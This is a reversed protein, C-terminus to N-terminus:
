DRSAKWGSTDLPPALTPVQRGREYVIILTRGDASYEIENRMFIDGSKPVSMYSRSGDDNEYAHRIRNYEPGYTSPRPITFQQVTQAPQCIVPSSTMPSSTVPSSTYPASIKPRCTAPRSTEVRGKDTLARLLQAGLSNKIDYDTDVIKTRTMPKIHQEFMIGPAYYKNGFCDEQEFYVERPVNYPVCVTEHALTKTLGFCKEQSYQVSPTCTPPRHPAYTQANVKESVGISGTLLAVLGLTKTIKNM